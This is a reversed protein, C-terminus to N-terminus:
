PAQFKLFKLLDLKINISSRKESSYNVMVSESDRFIFVAVPIHAIDEAIEDVKTMVSDVRDLYKGLFYPVDTPHKKAGLELFAFTRENTQEDTLPM